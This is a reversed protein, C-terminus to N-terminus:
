DLFARTPAAIGEGHPGESDDYCVKALCLGSAPAANVLNAHEDKGTLVKPVDDWACQGRCLDVVFGVLNRVMSRRFGPAELTFIVDCAPAEGSETDSEDEDQRTLMRADFKSLHINNDKKRRDQKHVFCSFEHRGALADCTRVLLRDDLAWPCVWLCSPDMTRRLTFVGSSCIPLEEGTEICNMKKRFRLSYTYRKIAVGERPEFPQSTARGDDGILRASRISVDPPLRSNMARRLKWSFDPGDDFVSLNGRDLALRTNAGPLRSSDDSCSATCKDSTDEGDPLDFAVVQGTAHVGKDTRGAGRVRLQRISLGTLRGLAEEITGQVTRLVPAEGNRGKSKGANGNKRPRKQRVPGKQTSCCPGDRSSTASSYSVKDKGKEDDTSAQRQYGYFDTGDYEVTLM